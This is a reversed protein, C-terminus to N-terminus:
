APKAYQSLGSAVDISTVHGRQDIVQLLPTLSERDFLIEHTRRAAQRVDKAPVDIVYVVRHLPEKGKDNPPPEIRLGVQSRVDNLRECLANVEHFTLPKLISGNTAIDRIFQDPITPHAQLNEDQHYRLAALITALEREDFPFPRGSERKVPASRPTVPPLPTALPAPSAKALATLQWDLAELASAPSSGLGFRQPEAKEFDLPGKYAWAEYEQGKRNERNRALIVFSQSRLFELLTKM